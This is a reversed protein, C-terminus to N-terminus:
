AAPSQKSVLDRWAETGNKQIYDIKEQGSWKAIPKSTDGSAGSPPSGGGQSGSASFAPQYDPIAKLSEVYGLITMPDGKANSVIPQGAADVIRVKYEGGEEVLSMAGRVIPGLLKPNGKAEVIAQTAADQILVKELNRKLAAIKDQEAKLEDNHKAIMQAKVAEFNGDKELKDRAEDEREKKLKKLEKLENQSLGELRQKLALQEEKQKAFATKLGQVDESGEAGEADIQFRGDERQKYLARYAEDVEELKAVIFKLAM